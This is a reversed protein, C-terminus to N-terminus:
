AVTQRPSIASQGLGRCLLLTLGLTTCCLMVRPFHRLFSRWFIVYLPVVGATNHIENWGGEWGVVTDRCFSFPGSSFIFSIQTIENERVSEEPLSSFIVEVVDLESTLLERSMEGHKPGPLTALAKNAHARKKEKKRYDCSRTIMKIM